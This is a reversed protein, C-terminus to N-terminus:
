GRSVIWGNQPPGLLDAGSRTIVARDEIKVHGVEPHRFEMELSVVMGSELVAEARSDIVPDEHHVLGIGRALLASLRARDFPLTSSAV